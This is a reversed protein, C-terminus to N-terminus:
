NQLFLFLVGLVKHFFSIFFLFFFSGSKTELANQKARGSGNIIKNINGNKNKQKTTKKKSESPSRPIHIHAHLHIHITYFSLPSPSSPTLSHTPLYPLTYCLAHSFSRFHNPSLCVSLGLLLSSAFISLFFSLFLM